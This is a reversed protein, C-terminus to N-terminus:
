IDLPSSFIPETACFHYYFDKHLEGHLTAELELGISCCCKAGKGTVLEVPM